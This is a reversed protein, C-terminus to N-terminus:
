DKNKFVADAHLLQKLLYSVLLLLIVATVVGPTYAKKYLTWGLHGGINLIELVMWFWILGTFAAKRILLSWWYLLSFFIFVTNIILFGTKPDSSILNCIFRAPAYVEWLKGFYEEAAHVAQTLILLLFTTSIRNNM